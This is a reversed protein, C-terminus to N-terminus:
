AELADSVRQVVAPAASAYHTATAYEAYLYRGPSSVSGRDIHQDGNRISSRVYQTLRRALVAPSSDLLERLADVAATREAVVPEVSEPIGYAGNSVADTADAFADNATLAHMAQAIVLVPQDTDHRQVATQAANWRLRALDRLLSEAATNKIDRDFRGTLTERDLEDTYAAVDDVLTDAVSAFHAEYDHTDDLTSTYHEHLRRADAAYARGWEVDQALEAAHLATNEYEHHDDATIIRTGTQGWDTIKAHEAFAGVPDDVPGGYSYDALFAEADQRHRQRRTEIDAPTLSDEFAAFGANVFMAESRAHTLGGLAAVRSESTDDQTLADRAYERERALTRRVVENPIRSLEAADLLSRIRDRASAVHETSPQVPTTPPIRPLDSPLDTLATEDYDVSSESSLPNFRSCGALGGTLATGTAALLARRSLRSM